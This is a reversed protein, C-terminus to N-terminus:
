LTYKNPASPANYSGGDGIIIAETQPIEKMREDIEFSVQASM